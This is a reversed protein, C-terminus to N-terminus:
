IDGKRKLPNISKALIKFGSTFVVYILGLLLALPVFRIVDQRNYLYVLFFLIGKYNFLYEVVIMNSLLMTMLAPMTDVVKYLVAPFLEIFIIKRRSFGKAKENKIYDKTMEEHIAIFTIRSIYVTPVISLTLVPLIFGKIALSRNLEPYLVILKTYGLMIALVILIEPISFFVLSGLSGISTKKSRYAEIMGSFIGLVISILLSTAILAISLKSSKLLVKVLEVMQDSLYFELNLLQRLYLVSNKVILHFSVNSVIEGNVRAMNANPDINVLMTLLLVVLFYPMVSTYFKRIIMAITSFYVEEIHFKGIKLNGNSKYVAGLVFIGIGFLSLIALLVIESKRLYNISHNKFVENKLYTLLVKSANEVTGLDVGQIGDEYTNQTQMSDSFVITPVKNNLFAISLASRSSNLNAMLENDKAYKVILDAILTGTLPDPAVILGELTSKGINDLHIVKTKDLPLMPNDIYYQVGSQNQDNANWLAFIVTEYPMLQSAKMLRATELLIGVGTASNIAGSYFADKSGEGLSDLNASIILTEGNKTQGDMKALLNATEVIPFHMPVKLRMSRSNSNRLADYAEKSVYGVFISEGGKGSVDMVKTREYTNPSTYTNTDSSCLVGKGGMKMIHSVIKPTIRTAEVVAIKNEIVEQEVRYADAGLLVYEGYFDIPGGNPSFLPMYDQYMVFTEVIKGDAEVISFEPEEGIMPMLVSFEQRWKENDTASLPHDVADLGIKEFYSEVYTMAMQNGESGTLRGAYQSSTLAIVHEMINDSNLEDINFESRSLFQSFIITMLLVLAILLVRVGLKNQFM